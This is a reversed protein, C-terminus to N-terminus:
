REKGKRKNLERNSEKILAATFGKSVTMQERPREESAGKEGNIGRYEVHGTGGKGGKPGKPRLREEDSKNLRDRCASNPLSM